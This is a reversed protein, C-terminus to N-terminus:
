CDHRSWSSGFDWRPYHETLGAMCVTWDAEDAKTPSVLEISGDEVRYGWTFGCIAHVVRTMVADPTYVLFSSADWTVRTSTISPADFLSPLVGFSMYPTDAGMLQPAVDYIVNAKGTEHDTYRVIQVWGLIAAYGEAPFSVDARLVPFGRAKQISYDLGLLGYGWREPHENPGFWVTVLGALGRLKFALRLAVKDV